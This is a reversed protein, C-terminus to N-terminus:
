PAGEITVTGDEDVHVVQTVYWSSGVPGEPTGRPPVSAGFNPVSLTRTEERVPTSSNHYTKATVTIDTQTYCTTGEDDPQNLPPDNDVCQQSESDYSRERWWDRYYNIMFVYDGEETLKKLTINEPGTGGIDDNDLEGFDNSLNYYAILSGDPAWMYLDQDSNPDWIIHVRVIDFVKAAVATDAENGITGQFVLTYRGERATAAFNATFTAGNALNGPYTSFDATIEARNDSADDQYLHWAGAGLNEVSRNTIQLNYRVAAENWLVRIDLKGRFFYNVVETGYGITRPLLRQLYEELVANNNCSVDIRQPANIIVGYYAAAPDVYIGMNGARALRTLREIGNSPATTKAVDVWGPGTTNATSNPMIVQGNSPPPFLTALNTDAHSPHASDAFDFVTDRSFFNITTYEAMGPTSGFTFTAQGTYQDTDWWNSFRNFGSMPVAVTFRPHEAAPPVTSVGPLGNLQPVTGYHNSAYAELPESFPHLDDRVHAASSMDELLHLVQGLSRFVRAFAEERATANAESLAQFYYERASLFDWANDGTPWGATGNWAWELNTDYTGLMPANTTPLLYHRFSRNNPNDELEGGDILWAAYTQTGATAHEATETDGAATTDLGDPLLLEEVLFDHVKCKDNDIIVENLARHTTNHTWRVGADGRPAPAPPPVCPGLHNFPAPANDVLDCYNPDYQYELDVGSVVDVVVTNRVVVVGPGLGPESGPPQEGLDTGNTSVFEGYAFIMLAAVDATAEFVHTAGPDLAYRALTYPMPTSQIITDGALVQVIDYNRATGPVRGQNWTVPDFWDGGGTGNSIYLNGFYRYERQYTAFDRLDVDDDGDVDLCTCGAPVGGGIGTFCGFEIGWDNPDCEDPFGNTNCDRSAGSRLDCEDPVGNLNCDLSNGRSVDFEDLAGNTNCDAECIDAVGNTDADACTAAYGHFTGGAANCDSPSTSPQCSDDPMCCVGNTSIGACANTNCDTGGGLYAGGLVECDGKLIVACGDGICCAGYGCPVALEACTTAGYFSLPSACDGEAVGDTCVGTDQDCCAGIISCPPVLEECLTDSTFQLPPRCDDFIVGNTCIGTDPDCCAGPLLEVKLHFAFTDSLLAPLPAQVGWYFGNEGPEPPSSSAWFADAAPPAGPFTVLVGFNGAGLDFPVGYCDYYMLNYGFYDLGSDTIALTGDALMFTEDVVPVETGYMGLDSIGGPPLAYVQVRATTLGTATNDLMEIRVCTFETLDNQPLLVDDIIGTNSWGTTPRMGNAGDATGNDFVMTNCDPP